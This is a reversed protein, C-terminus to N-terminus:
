IRTKRMTPGLYRPIYAVGALELVLNTLSQDALSYQCAVVVLRVTDVVDVELHVGRM